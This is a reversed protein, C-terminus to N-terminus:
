VCSGPVPVMAPAFTATLYRSLDRDRVDRLEQTTRRRRAVVRANRALWAWGALKDRFWGEKLAIATM